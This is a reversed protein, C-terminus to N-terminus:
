KVYVKVGNVIYIGPTLTKGTMRVGGLTFIEAKGNEIVEIGTVGNNQDVTYVLNIEANGLGAANKFQGPLVSFIFRETSSLSGEPTPFTVTYGNDAKVFEASVNYNLTVQQVPGSIHRTTKMIMSPLM